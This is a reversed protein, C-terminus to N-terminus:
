LVFTRKARESFIFGAATALALCSSAVEMWNPAERLGARAFAALLAVNLPLGIGMLARTRARRRVFSYAAWVLFAPFAVDYLFFVPARDADRAFFASIRAPAEFASNLISLALSVAPIWLWGGIGLPTTRVAAHTVEPM